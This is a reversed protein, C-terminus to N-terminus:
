DNKHKNIYAIAIKNFEKPKEINVVHGCNNVIELELNSENHVIKKAAEIFLHDESGMIYLAIEQGNEQHLYTLYKALRGTLKFWKLFERHLLKRAEDIFILRSERHNRKPMMINAFLKYLTMNPLIPQFTRGLRLFFRSKLDLQTIAGAFIMTKIMKPYNVALQRIVITGLSVGIFHAKKIGLSNVVEAVENAIFEFSYKKELPLGQSKGHGRLDILVVNFNQNFDKIQKFWVNSSGGFGHIFITWESSNSNILVKHFLM